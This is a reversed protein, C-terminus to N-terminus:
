GFLGTAGGSREGSPSDAPSECSILNIHDSSGKGRPEKADLITGNSLAFIRFSIDPADTPKKRIYTAHSQASKVSASPHGDAKVKEVVKKYPLGVTRGLDDEKM